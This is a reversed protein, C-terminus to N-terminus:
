IGGGYRVARRIVSRGIRIDKLLRDDFHELQREARRLRREEGISLLYTHLDLKSLHLSM